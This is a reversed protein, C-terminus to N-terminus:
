PTNYIVFINIAPKKPLTNVFLFVYPLTRRQGNMEECRRDEKKPGM